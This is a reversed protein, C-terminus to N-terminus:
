GRCESRSGCSCRDHGKERKDGEAGQEIAEDDIVWRAPAVRAEDGGQEREQGRRDKFLDREQRAGGGVLAEDGVSPIGVITEYPVDFGGDAGVSGDKLKGIDGEGFGRGIAAHDIVIEEAAIEM